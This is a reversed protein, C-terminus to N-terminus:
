ISWASCLRSVFHCGDLTFKQRFVLVTGQPYTLPAMNKAALM